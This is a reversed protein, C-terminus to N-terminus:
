ARRARVTSAPVGQLSNMTMTDSLLISVFSTLENTVVLSKHLGWFTMVLHVHLVVGYFHLIVKGGPILLTLFIGKLIFFGHLFLCYSVLILNTSLLKLMFRFYGYINSISTPDM